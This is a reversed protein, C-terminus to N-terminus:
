LVLIKYNVFMLHFNFILCILTLTKKQFVTHVRFNASVGYMCVFHFNLKKSFRFRRLFTRNFEEIFLPFFTFNRLHKKESSVRTWFSFTETVFYQFDFGFPKFFFFFWSESRQCKKVLSLFTYKQQFVYEGEWFINKYTTKHISWICECPNNKKYEYM